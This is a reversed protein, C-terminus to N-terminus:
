KTGDMFEADKWRKELKYFNNMQPTMIHVIISATTLLHHYILTSLTTTHFLFLSFATSTVTDVNRDLGDGYIYVIIELEIEEEDGGENDETSTM